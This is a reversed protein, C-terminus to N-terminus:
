RSVIVTGSSIGNENSVRVVYMGNALAGLYVPEGPIFVGSHVIKGTMDLISIESKIDVSIFLQDSTPNPYIGKLPATTPEIALPLSTKAVTGGDGIAFLTNGGKYLRKLQMNTTHDITTTTGNVKLISGTTTGTQTSIFGTSSGNMFVDTFFVSSSTDTLITDWSTGGNTTSILYNNSLPWGTNFVGFGKVGSIFHTGNFQSYPTNVIHEQFSTGNNVSSIVSGQYGFTGDWGTFVITDKGTYEKDTASSYAALTRPGWTQGGDTTKYVTGFNNTVYGTNSDVFRIMQYYDGSPLTDTIWSNGGNITTAISFSSFMNILVFGTDMSIFDVDVIGQPAVVSDWTVGGNSTRFLYNYNTSAIYGHNDDVFSAKDLSWDSPININTWQAFIMQSAVISVAFSLIFKSNM